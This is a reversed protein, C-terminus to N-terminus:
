DELEPIMSRLQSATDRWIPLQAQQAQETMAELRAPNKLLNRLKEEFDKAHNGEFIQVARNNSNELVSPINSALVPTGMWLSELVPLGCGEALSPFLCLHSTRYLKLVFNKDPSKHWTIPLGKRQAETIRDYIPDGFHPNLRGAIHLHLDMGEAHLNECAEIALIHNKRPELIGVMLLQWPPKVDKDSSNHRLQFHLDAGLQLPRTAPRDKLELWDWYHHLEDQSAKSISLVQDFHTGLMKMYEPHRAVSQPWTIEPFRLPIADYFIAFKPGEYRKLWDLIGQRGSESFIEPTILPAEELIPMKTKSDFFHRARKHWYVQRINWCTAELEAFLRNAVQKMGSAPYRPNGTKTADWYIKKHSEQSM